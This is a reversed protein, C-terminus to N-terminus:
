DAAPIEIIRKIPYVFCQLVEVQGNQLLPFRPFRRFRAPARVFCPETRGRTEGGYRAHFHPPVHDNFFMRILIGHFVSITPM